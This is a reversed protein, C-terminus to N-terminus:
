RDDERIAAVLTALASLALFFAGIWANVANDTGGPQSFWTGGVGALVMAAFLQVVTSGILIGVM